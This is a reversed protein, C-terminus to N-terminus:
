NSIKISNFGNSYVILKWALQHGLEGVWGKPFSNWMFCVKSLNTIVQSFTNLFMKSEGNWPRSRTTINQMVGLFEPEWIQIHQVETSIYIQINYFYKLQYAFVRGFFYLIVRFGLNGWNLAAQIMIMLSAFHTDNIKDGIEWSQEQASVVLAADVRRQFTLYNTMYGLMKWCIKWLNYRLRNRDNDARTLLVSESCQNM